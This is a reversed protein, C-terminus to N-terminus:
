HPVQRSEDPGNGELRATKITGILKDIKRTCERLMAQLQDLFLTMQDFLTFEFNINNFGVALANFQM